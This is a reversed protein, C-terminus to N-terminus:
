RGTLSLGNGFVALHSDFERSRLDVIVEQDRAGYIGWVQYHMSDPARPDSATLAGYMSLLGGEVRIIRATDVPLARGVRYCEGQWCPRSGTHTM